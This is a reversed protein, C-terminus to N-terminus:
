HQTGILVWDTTLSQNAISNGADSPIKGWIVFDGQAGKLLNTSIAIPSANWAALTQWGTSADVGGLGPNNAAVAALAAAQSDYQVVAVQVIPSLLGWNGSPASTLRATVDLGINSASNNQLAFYQGQQWGPYTNGTFLASSLSEQWGDGDWIQLDANGTSLTVGSVQVQDSFVAYATGSVVAVVMVLGLLGSIIKGM